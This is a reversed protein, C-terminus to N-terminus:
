EIGLVVGYALLAAAFPIASEDLKFQPHHWPKDAGIQKNGIGLRFMASPVKQAYHAFDEGGLVPDPIEYIAKKGYLDATAKRFIDNIRKDNVLNPYGKLFDFTYTAGYTRCVGGIIKEIMSKINRALNKDLMRVTGQMIVSEAIINTAVGGNITGITLVIPNVPDVQRSSINQLATVVNAAVVVADVTEHPRAAHGSKGIIEITFDDPEAMMSGDYFGAKGVPIDPDVHVGFMMDVKPKELVGKEILFKSGGPPLEEAPQYIFKVNGKLEDKIESLIKAVGWVIAMHADHGCAHMKGPNKSAFRYGTKETVPLADMDSRIAITKGKGHGKLLGLVANEWINTKVTCRAQKLRLAIMKQTESEEHAIEPNQHLTRRLEIMAPTHKKALQEIKTKLEKM